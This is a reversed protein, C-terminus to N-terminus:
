TPATARMPWDSAVTAVNAALRGQYAPADRYEVPTTEPLNGVGALHSDMGTLLMARSPACIPSAHFNAFQVGSRALADITPTAIESGYAGLDSFGVDDAVVLVINPREAAHAGGALALVLFVLARPM